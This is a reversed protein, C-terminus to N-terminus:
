SLQASAESALKVLKIRTYSNTLVLTLVNGLKGLDTGQNVGITGPSNNDSNGWVCKKASVDRTIVGTMVRVRTGWLVLCSYVAVDAPAM